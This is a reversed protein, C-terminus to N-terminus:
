PQTAISSTPVNAPPTQMEFVTGDYICDVIMGLSIDGSVLDTGGGLKRITKAGLGNVNLTAAGTNALNAVFQVRMGTTYAVPAPTITVAYTNVAGTASAYTAEQNRVSVKADDQIKFLEDIVRKTLTNTFQVVGISTDFIRATQEPSTSADTNPIAGTARTITFLDGTRATVTM